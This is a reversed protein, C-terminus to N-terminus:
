RSGLKRDNLIYSILEEILNLPLQIKPFLDINTQIFEFCIEKLSFAM